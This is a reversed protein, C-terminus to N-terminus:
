NALNVITGRFKTFTELNPLFYLFSAVKSPLPERILLWEREKECTVVEREADKERHLQSRSGSFFGRFSELLFWCHRFGLGLVITLEPISKRRGVRKREVEGRNREHKEEIESM